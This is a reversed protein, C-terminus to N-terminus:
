TLVLVRPKGQPGATLLEKETKPLWGKNATDKRINDRIRHSTKKNEQGQRQFLLGKFHTSLKLLQCRWFRQYFPLHSVLITM